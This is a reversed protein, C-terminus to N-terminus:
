CYNSVKEYHDYLSSTICTNVVDLFTVGALGRRLDRIKSMCEKNEDSYWAIYKEESLNYGRLANDDTLGSPWEKLRNVEPTLKGLPIDSFKRKSACVSLSVEVDGFISVFLNMIAKGDGLCHHLRFAVLKLGHLVPSDANVDAMNNNVSGSFLIVQMLAHGDDPMSEVDYKQFVESLHRKDEIAVDESTQLIFDKPKLHNKYFYHYGLFSARSYFLKKHDSKMASKVMAITKRFLTQMDDKTDVLLLVNPICNTQNCCISDLGEMFDIFVDSYLNQLIYRVLQKYLYCLSYLTLFIPTLIM